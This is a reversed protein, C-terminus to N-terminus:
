SDYKTRLFTASNTIQYRSDRVVEYATERTVQPLELLADAWLASTNLPLFRVFEGVQAEVPVGPSCVIPLGAAQGELAAICLGESLSPILLCDMACLLPAIQGCYGYFITDKQLGLRDAKRELAPREEGDGVLLLKADKGRRRMEALVDLLFQQNKQSDMRGVCGMLLQSTLGLEERCSMRAEKSFRYREAEIGNPILTVPYRAPFLFRGAAFSSAWRETPAWAFLGRSLWHVAKKLPSLTSERLGAGHCHVVVRPVGCVRASVALILSLGQFVNLHVLDFPQEKLLKILPFVSGLTKKLASDGAAKQLEEVFIGRESFLTDFRDSEKKAAVLRISIGSLDMHALSQALFTEIGGTSWTDCYILVRREIQEGM